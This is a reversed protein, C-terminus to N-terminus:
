RRPTFPGSWLQSLSPGVGHSIARARQVQPGALWQAVALADQLSSTTTASVGVALSATAAVKGPIPVRVWPFTPPAAVLSQPLWNWHRVVLANGQVWFDLAGLDDAAVAPAGIIAAQIWQRLSSLAHVASPRQAGTSSTPLARDRTLLETGNSALLELFTLTLCETARLPLLLGIQAPNASAEKALTANM